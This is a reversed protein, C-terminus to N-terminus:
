TIKTILLNNMYRIEKNLHDIYFVPAFNQADELSSSNVYTAGTFNIQVRTTGLINDKIPKFTPDEESDVTKQVMNLGVITKGDSLKPINIQFDRENTLSYSLRTPYRFGDGHESKDTSFYDSELFKITVDTTNDTISIPNPKSLTDEFYLGAGAGLSIRDPYLPCAGDWLGGAVRMSESEGGTYYPWAFGADGLFTFGERINQQFENLDSSKITSENYFGIYRYNKNDRQEDISDIGTRLNRGVNGSTAVGYDGHFQQGIEDLGNPMYYTKGNLVHTHYGFFGLSSEQPTRAEDPTPSALVAGEKTDYLPYYGLVSFPGREVSTLTESEEGVLVTPPEDYYPEFSYLNDKSVGYKHALYSRIRNINDTTLVTDGFSKVVLFEMVVFHGFREVGEDNFIPRKGLFVDEIRFDDVLTSFPVLTSTSISSRSMRSEITFRTQDSQNNPDPAQCLITEGVRTTPDIAPDPYVFPRAKSFVDRVESRVFSETAYGTDTLTSVNYGQNIHFNNVRQPEEEEDGSGIRDNISFFREGDTQSQFFEGEDVGLEVLDSQFISQTVAFVAYDQNYNIHFENPFRPTFYNKKRYGDDLDPSLEGRFYFAKVIPGDSPHNDDYQTPGGGHAEPPEIVDDGPGIQIKVVNPATGDRNILDHQQGWESSNIWIPNPEDEDPINESQYWGILDRGLDIPTWPRTPAEQTPDIDNGFERNECSM